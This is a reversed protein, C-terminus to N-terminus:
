SVLVMLCPLVGTEQECNPNLSDDKSTLELAWSKVLARYAEELTNILCL